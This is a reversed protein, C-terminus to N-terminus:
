VKVSPMLHRFKLVRTIDTKYQEFFCFLPISITNATRVFDHLLDALMDSDKEVAKLLSRQEGFNFASAVSAIISAKSQSNSGRHPTGLFIVGAISSIIDPYDEEHLKASVIAQLPDFIHIAQNPFTRLGKRHCYRRLLSGRLYNPAPSM